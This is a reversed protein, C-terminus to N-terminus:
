SPMSALVARGTDRAWIAIQLIANRVELGDNSGFEIIVGEPGVLSTTCGDLPIVSGRIAELTPDPRAQYHTAGDRNALTKILKAPTYWGDQVTGIPSDIWDAATMEHWPLFSEPVPVTSIVQPLMVQFGNTARAGQAKSFQGWVRLRVNLERALVLLTPCTKETDPDCLMTRLIGAMQTHLNAEDRDEARFLADLASCQGQLLKALRNVDHSM